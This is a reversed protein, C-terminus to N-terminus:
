YLIPKRLLKEQFNPLDIIYFIFICLFAGSDNIITRIEPFKAICNAAYRKNIFKLYKKLNYTLAAMLVYKTALAIGRANVKKM